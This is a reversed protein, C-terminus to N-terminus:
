LATTQASNLFIIKCRSTEWHRSVYSCRRVKGQQQPVQLASSQTAPSCHATAIKQSRTQRYKHAFWPAKCNLDRAPRNEPPFSTSSPFAAQKGTIYTLEPKLLFWKSFRTASSATDPPVVQSKGTQSLGAEGPSQKQASCCKAASVWLGTSDLVRSWKWLGRGM